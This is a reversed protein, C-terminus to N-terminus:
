SSLGALQLTVEDGSRTALYAQVQRQGPGPTFLFDPVMTAFGTPREGEHPPYFHATGAIKGNVAIVMVSGPPPTGSTVQGVIIQPSQPSGPTVTRFRNWGNMKVTVQGGAIQGIQRPSRYVWDAGVGFQYFGKEGNQHARVLTDTVGQLAKAWLPPGPRVKREGPNEYWWKETRQRKPAGVESFGDVKWPVSLGALEAITPLLDVHEWNRDDALGKTQHPTKIFLPVWMLTPENGGGLSRTKVASSFGAGHDATMLVLSKDYLGQQKLRDILKGVLTDTYALQLLQRQHSLETTATPWTGVKSVPGRGVPDAYTRGDPLYKWPAHPLLVHLFYLTPQPDGASVSRVFKDFRAPQNQGLNKFLAAGGQQTGSAGSGPAGDLAATDVPVDVPWAIDKYLKATEKVVTGFGSRTRTQRCKAPPCLETVTESVKLNYYHGFMTFLNDPYVQAVPAANRRGKEPYRGTLMAPVAYPTWGSVGTANRFWTADGAFRAFNPYVRGDVAGHGDLLSQLPFEDFFVVVVPPLPKGPSTRLPVAGQTGSHSPLILRATPSTTAFLIAFLLPAPALYRLWLKLGSWRHYLLVAAAALLLALLALLKGRLPLLKKGTELALLCFLGGVIALHLLSRLREGGLARALVQASWLALAPVVTILGALLLIGGRDLRHFLFFDPAKGTVDLLPQTVVFGTLVFLDLLAWWLPRPVRALLGGVVGGRRVGAGSTEEAVKSSM